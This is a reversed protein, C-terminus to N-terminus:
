AQGPKNFFHPCNKKPTIRIDPFWIYYHFMFSEAPMLHNLEKDESSGNWYTNKSWRTAFTSDCNTIITVTFYFHRNQIQRIKTKVAMGTSQSKNFCFHCFSVNELRPIWYWWDSRSDFCKSIRALIMLFLSSILFWCFLAIVM